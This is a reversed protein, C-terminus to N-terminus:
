EPAESSQTTAGKKCELHRKHLLGGGFDQHHVDVVRAYKNCCTFGVGWCRSWAVEGPCVGKVCFTMDTDECLDVQPFM